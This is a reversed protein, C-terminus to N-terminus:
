HQSARAKALGVAPDETGHEDTYTDVLKRSYQAVRCKSTPVVTAAAEAVQGQTLQKGPLLRDAGYLAAAAVTCRSTGPGIPVQDGLELLYCALRWTRVARAGPIADEKLADLVALVAKPRVVPADVACQCRIKRAAACVRERPAKTYAAVASDINEREIDAARVALLVASGALSEWAM